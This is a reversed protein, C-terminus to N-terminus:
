SCCNSRYPRDDVEFGHKPRFRAPICGCELRVEAETLALIREMEKTADVKWADAGLEEPAKAAAARLGAVRCLLVAHQRVTTNRVQMWAPLGLVGRSHNPHAAATALHQQWEELSINCWEAWQVYQAYVRVQGRKESATAEHRQARGGPQSVKFGGALPLTKWEPLFVLCAEAISLFEQDLAQVVAKYAQQQLM